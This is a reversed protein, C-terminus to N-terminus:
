CIVNGHTSLYKKKIKCFEFYSINKNIGPCSDSIIHFNDEDDLLAPVLPWQACRWPRGAHVTCGDKYFICHGDETKMQVINKTIKLFRAELDRPQLSLSEAMRKQDAKDLSVTTEGQCCFGCLTCKFIKEIVDM